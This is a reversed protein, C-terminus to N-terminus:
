KRPEGGEERNGSESLCEGEKASLKQPCIGPLLGMKAIGASIEGEQEGRDESWM